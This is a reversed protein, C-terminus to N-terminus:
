ECANANDILEHQREVLSVAVLMTKRVHCCIMIERSDDERRRTGSPHPDNDQAGAETAKLRCFSQRPDIRIHGDDVPVVIVEELRKEILDRGGTKRRGVDSRRDAADQSPLAVRRDHERLHGADIGQAVLHDQALAPHRIVVEDERGPGPVGIETM